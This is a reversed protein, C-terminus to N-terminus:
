LSVTEYHHSCCFAKGQLKKRERVIKKQVVVSSSAPSGMQELRSGRGSLYLSPQALSEAALDRKAAHTTEAKSAACHPQPQKQGSSVCLLSNSGAASSQSDFSVGVPSLPDLPHAPELWQM